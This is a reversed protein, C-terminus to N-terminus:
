AQLLTPQSKGCTGLIHRFVDVEKWTMKASIVLQNLADSTIKGAFVADVARVLLDANEKLSILEGSKEDGM